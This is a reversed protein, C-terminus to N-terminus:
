AFSTGISPRISQRQLWVERAALPWDIGALREDIYDLDGRSPSARREELAEIENERTAARLIEGAAAFEGARCREDINPVTPEDVWFEVIRQTDENM